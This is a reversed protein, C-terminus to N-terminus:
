QSSIISYNIEEKNLRLLISRNAAAAATYIMAATRFLSLFFLKAPLKKKEEWASGDQLYCSLSLWLLTIFYIFSSIIPGGTQAIYPALRGRAGLSM